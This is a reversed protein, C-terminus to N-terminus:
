QIMMQRSFGPIRMKRGKLSRTRKAFSQLFFDPPTPLTQAGAQICSVDSALQALLRPPNPTDVRNPSRVTIMSHDYMIRGSGWEGVSNPTEQRSIKKGCSDPRRSMQPLLQLTKLHINPFMISIRRNLPCPGWTACSKGFQM